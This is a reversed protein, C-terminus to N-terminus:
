LPSDKPLVDTDIRSKYTKDKEPNLLSTPSGRSTSSIIKVIFPHLEKHHDKIRKGKLIRNTKENKTLVYRKWIM